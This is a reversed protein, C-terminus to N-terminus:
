SQISAMAAPKTATKKVLKKQATANITLLFTSFIFLINKM